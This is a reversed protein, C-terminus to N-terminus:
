CSRSCLVAHPICIVYRTLSTNRVELGLQDFEEQPMLAMARVSRAIDPFIIELDQFTLDGEKIVKYFAPAFCACAMNASSLSELLVLGLLRGLGVFHAGAVSSQALCYPSFYVLGSQDDRVFFDTSSLDNAVLAFVARTVGGADIAHEGRFSFRIRSLVFHM